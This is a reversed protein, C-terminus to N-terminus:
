AKRFSCVRPKSPKAFDSAPKEKGSSSAPEPTERRPEFPRVFMILRLHHNGLEGVSIESRVQKPRTKEIDNLDLPLLLMHFYVLNLSFGCVGDVSVIELIILGVM